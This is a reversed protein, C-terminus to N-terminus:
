YLATTCSRILDRDISKKTDDKPTDVSTKLKQLARKSYILTEEELSLLTDVCSIDIKMGDVTYANKLQNNQLGIHNNKVWFYRPGRHHSAGLDIDQSWVWVLYKCFNNYDSEQTFFMDVDSVERQMNFRRSGWVYWNLSEALEICTNVLTSETIVKDVKELKLTDQLKQINEDSSSSTLNNGNNKM